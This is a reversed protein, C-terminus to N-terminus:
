RARVSVRWKACADERSKCMCKIKFPVEGLVQVRVGGRVRKKDKRACTVSM